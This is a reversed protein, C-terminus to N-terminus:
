FDQKVGEQTASWFMHLCACIYATVKIYVIGRRPSNKFNGYDM